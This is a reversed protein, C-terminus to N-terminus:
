IEGSRFGAQITATDQSFISSYQHLLEKQPRFADGSALKEKRVSTKNKESNRIIVETIYSPSFLIIFRRM